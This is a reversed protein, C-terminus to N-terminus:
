RMSEYEAIKKAVRSKAFADDTMEFLRIAAMFVTDEHNECILEKALYKETLKLAEEKKGLSILLFANSAAAYLDEPYTELWEKGFDEAEKYRGMKQLANGKRFMYQSPCNEEWEFQDMIRDCSEILILWQEKDEIFDFYEEFIDKFDYTFGTEETLLHLEKAFFPTVSREDDIASMLTDFAEKWASVDDTSEQLLSLHCKCIQERASEWIKSSLDARM